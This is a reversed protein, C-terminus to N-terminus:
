RRLLRHLGAKATEVDLLRAKDASAVERHDVGGTGEILAVIASWKFILHTRHGFPQFFHVGRRLIGRKILKEIANGSWPGVGALQDASLYEHSPASM